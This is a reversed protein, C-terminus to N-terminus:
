KKLYFMANMAFTGGNDVYAEDGQITVSSKTQYIINYTAAQAGTTTAAAYNFSVNGGVVNWTYTGVRHLGDITYDYSGTGDKHFTLTGVNYETGIKANTGITGAQAKQYSIREIQWNEVKALNRETKKEKSCSYSVTTFAFLLIFAIPSTLHKM